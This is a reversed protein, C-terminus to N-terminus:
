PYDASGATCDHRPLATEKSRASFTMDELLKGLGEVAAMYISLEAHEGQNSHFHKSLQM